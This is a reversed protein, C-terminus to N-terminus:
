HKDLFNSTDICVLTEFISDNMCFLQDCWHEGIGKTSYSLNYTYYYETSRRFKKNSFWSKFYSKLSHYIFNSVLKTLDKFITKSLYITIIGLQRKCNEYTIDTTSIRHDDGVEDDNHFIM